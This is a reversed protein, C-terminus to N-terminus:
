GSISLFYEYILYSIFIRDLINLSSEFSFLLFYNMKKTFPDFNEVSVKCSILMHFSAWLCLENSFHFNFGCNHAVVSRNCHNFNFSQGYRTNDLIHCFLLEWLSIIPIYFIQFINQCNRLFTFTYWGCLGSM